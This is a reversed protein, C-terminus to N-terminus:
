ATEDGLHLHGRLERSSDLSGRFDRLHCGPGMFYLHPMDLIVSLGKTSLASTRPRCRWARGVCRKHSKRREHGTVLAHKTKNIQQSRKTM